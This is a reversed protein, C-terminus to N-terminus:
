FVALRGAPRREHNPRVSGTAVKVRPLRSGPAADAAAMDSLAHHILSAICFVLLAAHLAVLWLRQKRKTALTRMVETVDVHAGARNSELLALAALYLLASIWRGSLVCVGASAALLGLQPLALANVKRACDHPNIYDNQLDILMVLEHLSLVLSLSQLLFVLVLWPFM